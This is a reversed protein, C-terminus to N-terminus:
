SQGKPGYERVIDEESYGARRADSESFNSKLGEAIYNRRERLTMENITLNGPCRVGYPPLFEDKPNDKRSVM